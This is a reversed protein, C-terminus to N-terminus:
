NLEAMLQWYCVSSFFFFIKPVTYWNCGANMTYLKAEKHTHEHAHKHLDM